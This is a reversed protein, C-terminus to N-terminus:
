FGGGFVNAVGCRSELTCLRVGAYSCSYIDWLLASFQAERARSQVMPAVCHCQNTRRGEGQGKRMSAICGILVLWHRGTVGARGLMVLGGVRWVLEYGSKLDAVECYIPLLWRARAQLTILVGLAALTHDFRGGVQSEGM